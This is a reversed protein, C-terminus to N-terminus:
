QPLLARQGNLRRAGYRTVGRPKYLSLVTALLLVLLGGTAHVVLQIQLAGVDNGAMRGAAAAVAVSHIPRLQFLLVVTALVTLVLKTVVWYHRFLGWPRGSVRM